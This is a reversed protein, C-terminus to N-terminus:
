ASAFRLAAKARTLLSMTSALPRTEVHRANAVARTAEPTLALVTTLFQARRSPPIDEIGLFGVLEASRDTETEDGAFADILVRIREAPVGADLKTEVALNLLEDTIPRKAMTYPETTPESHWYGGGYKVCNLNPRTVEHPLSDRAAFVLDAPHGVAEVAHRRCALAPAANSSWVAVPFNFAAIIGVM